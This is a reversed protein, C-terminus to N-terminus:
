SYKKNSNSKRRGNSKIKNLKLNILDLYEDMDIQVLDSLTINPTHDKIVEVAFTIPNNNDNIIVGALMTSVLLNPEIDNINKQIFEAIKQGTRIDFQQISDVFDEDIDYGAETYKPKVDM